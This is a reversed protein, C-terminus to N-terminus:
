RAQGSVVLRGDDNLGNSWSPTPARDTTTTTFFGTAAYLTIGAASIQGQMMNGRSLSNVAFAPETFRVDLVSGAQTVVATYVRRSYEPLVRSSCARWDFTATFTGAFDLRPGALPWSSRSRRTIRSSWTGRNRRTAPM